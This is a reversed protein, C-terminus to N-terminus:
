IDKAIEFYHIFYVFFQLIGDVNITEDPQVTTNKLLEKFEGDDLNEGLETLIKKLQEITFYGNNTPDFVDFAKRLEDVADEEKWVKPL